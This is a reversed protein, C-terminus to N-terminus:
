AAAPEPTGNDNGNIVEILTPPEEPERRPSKVIRIALSRDENPDILDIKSATDLGLFERIDKLTRLYIDAARYDHEVTAKDGWSDLMHEYRKATMARLVEVNGLAEKNYEKLADNVIRRAKTESIGLTEGIEDYDLNHLRLNVAASITQADEVKEPTAIM